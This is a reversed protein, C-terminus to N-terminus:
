LFFSPDQSVHSTYHLEIDIGQAKYQAANSQFRTIAEWDVSRHMAIRVRADKWPVTQKERHGFIMRNATAIEIEQGVMIANPADTRLKLADQPTPTFSEVRQALFQAYRNSYEPIIPQHWREVFPKGGWYEPNAKFQRTVSPQYKDLIRFNTGIMATHSLDPKDNLEKPSTKLGFNIDTGLRILLPSYPYKLKLTMHSADPYSVSDVQENFAPSNAGVEQMRKMSTRWDEINMVRGNVPAINHFKVNPRQKFTYTLGDPSIEWSEATAGSMTLYEKSGPAIGPGRTEALMYEYAIGTFNDAAPTISLYVDFNETFDESVSETLVGGSVAERTQDSIKYADKAYVVAGPKRVDSAQLSGSPAGSGGGGCALLFAGGAGAAAGGLFRRRTVSAYGPLWSPTSM